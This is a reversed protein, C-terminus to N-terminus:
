PEARIGLRRYAAVAVPHREWHRWVTGARHNALSVAFAGLDIGILDRGYWNRRPDRDDLRFPRLGFEGDIQSWVPSDRWRILDAAVEDPIWPLTALATMPWAVGDADDALATPAIYTGLPGDGASIGWWGGNVMSYTPFEDAKKRCLKRNMLATLRANEYLDVGDRDVRGSLRHWGLGYYSTFLPHRLNLIRRGEVDYDEIAADYWTQPDVSQKSGVALFVPMATESSRVDIPGLLGQEPNWGLSLLRKGGARNVVFQPWDVRDLLETALNKVAGGYAESAVMAGNLLIATDLTSVSSRDWRKGTRWDTFQYFVGHRHEAREALFRLTQEAQRAAEQQSLYGRRVWEPSLSLSYGTASSAAMARDSPPPASNKRNPARDLVLGTEPHRHTQFWHFVKRDLEDLIEDASAAAARREAPGEDRLLEWPRNAPDGAAVNAPSVVSPTEEARVVFTCAASLLWVAPTCCLSV